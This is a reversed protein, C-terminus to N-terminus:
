PTGPWFLMIMIAGLVAPITLGLVACVLFFALDHISRMRCDESALVAKGVDTHRRSRGLMEIAALEGSFLHSTRSCKIAEICAVPGAPLDQLRSGGTVAQQERSAGADIHPRPRSPAIGDTKQLRDYGADGNGCQLLSTVGDTIIVALSGVLGSSRWRLGDRGRVGASMAQDKGPEVGPWRLIPTRSLNSVTV